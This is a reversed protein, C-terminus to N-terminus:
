IRKLIVCVSWTNSGVAKGTMFEETKIREFGHAEALLDIEPLSYHRMPHKETIITVAGTALDTAYISYDVDVRNENPYITPEGIRTIKVKSDAMRKIRVVPKQEYVAPSYWFDFIFLGDKKLHLAANRFVAHLNSNSTQYSLVHFLSLVVDYTKKMKIDCIDGVQCTFGSGQLAQNVMDLSQEIGHIRYGKEALLRGHKGTGSGFELIECTSFKYQHLIKQIYLSEKNYDKDLYLLDYYRSYANFVSSSM